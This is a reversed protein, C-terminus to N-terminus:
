LIKDLTSNIIERTLPKGLFIDAGNKIASIKDAVSDNATVMVVKIRPFKSKLYPLFEMGRGDPLSNDLFVVTPRRKELEHTADALSHAYRTDLNRRRFITTLLFCIDPEDDVILVRTQGREKM